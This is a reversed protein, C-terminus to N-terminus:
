TQKLNLRWSTWTMLLQNLLTLVSMWISYLSVLSWPFPLTEAKLHQDFTETLFRKMSDHQNRTMFETQAANSSTPRDKHGMFFTHYVESFFIQLRKQVSQDRDIFFSIQRDTQRDIKRDTPRDTQRNYPRRKAMPQYKLYHDPVSSNLNGQTDDTDSIFIPRGILYTYEDWLQKIDATQVWVGWMVGTAYGARDTLLPLDRALSLVKGIKAKEDRNKGRKGIKPSNKATLPAGQM